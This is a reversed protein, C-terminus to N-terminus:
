SPHLSERCGPWSLLGVAATWWGGLSGRWQLGQYEGLLPGATTGNQLPLPQELTALAQLCPGLSKICIVREMSGSFSRPQNGDSLQASSGASEQFSASFVASGSSRPGRIPVIHAAVPHANAACGERKVPIRFRARIKRGTGLGDVSRSARSM